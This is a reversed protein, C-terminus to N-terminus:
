GDANRTVRLRHLMHLDLPEVRAALSGAIRSSDGRGGHVPYQTRFSDTFLFFLQSSISIVVNNWNDCMFINAIFKSLSTSITLAIKPNKFEIRVIYKKTFPNM